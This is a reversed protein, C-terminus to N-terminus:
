ECGILSAGGMKGHKVDLGQLVGGSTGGGRGDGLFLTFATGGGKAGEM